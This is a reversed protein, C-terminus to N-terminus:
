SSEPISHCLQQRQKALQLCGLPTHRIASVLVGLVQRHGLLCAQCTRGATRNSAAHGPLPRAPETRSTSRSVPMVHQYAQAAPKSTHSRDLTVFRSSQPVGIHSNLALRVIQASPRCAILSRFCIIAHCNANPRTCSSSASVSSSPQTQLQM